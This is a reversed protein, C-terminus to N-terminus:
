NDNHKGPTYLSSPFPTINNEKGIEIIKSKGRKEVEDVRIVAHMPVLTRTVGSFENKLKEESPDIVVSSNEGFILGEIEIFGYVGAQRVAEAYLLYINGQNIFTIRFIRM